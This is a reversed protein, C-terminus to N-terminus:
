LNYSALTARTSEVSAALEALSMKRIRGQHLMLEEKHAAVLFDKYTTRTNVQASVNVCFKNHRAAIWEFGVNLPTLVTEVAEVHVRLKLLKSIGVGVGVVVLVASGGYVVVIGVMAALCSLIMSVGSVWDMPSAWQFANQARVTEIIIDTAKFPDWLGNIVMVFVLQL